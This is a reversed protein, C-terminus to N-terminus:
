KIRRFNKQRTVAEVKETAFALCRLSGKGREEATIDIQALVVNWPRRCGEKV